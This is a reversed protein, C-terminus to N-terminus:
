LHAQATVVPRPMLGQITLTIKLPHKKTRFHGLRRLELEHLLAVSHSWSVFMIHSPYCELPDSMLESYFLM